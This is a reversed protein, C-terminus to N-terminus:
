YEVFKDLGIRHIGNHVQFERGDPQRQDDADPKDSPVHPPM